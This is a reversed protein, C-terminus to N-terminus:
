SDTVFETRGLSRETHRRLRVRAPLVQPDICMGVYGERKELRTRLPGHMRSMKRSIEFQRAAVTVQCCEVSCLGPPRASHKGLTSRCVSPLIVASLIKLQPSKGLTGLTQLYGRAYAPARVCTCAYVCAPPYREVSPVSPVRM